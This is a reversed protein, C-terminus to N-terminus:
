VIPQSFGARNAAEIFAPLKTLMDDIAADYKGPFMSKVNDIDGPMVDTLRGQRVLSTQHARHLKGAHSGM